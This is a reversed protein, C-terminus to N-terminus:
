DMNRINRANEILNTGSTKGKPNRTFMRDLQGIVANMAGTAASEVYSHVISKTGETSSPTGGALAAIGQTVALSPTPPPTCLQAMVDGPEFVVEYHLKYVIRLTSTSIGGGQVGIVLITWDNTDVTAIAAANPNSFTNSTTGGRKSFWTLKNTHALPYVEYEIFGLPNGINVAAYTASSASAGALTGIVIVGSAATLAVIPEITVACSVLRYQSPTISTGNFATLAGFTAADAVCTTAMAYGFTWGPCVICANEATSNTVFAFSGHAPITMTRMANTDPYKFGHAHECTADFGACISNVVHSGGGMGGRSKGKRKRNKRPRNPRAQVFIDMPTNGRGGRTVTRALALGANRRRNARNRAM